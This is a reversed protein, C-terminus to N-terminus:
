IKNKINKYYLKTTSAKLYNITEKNKKTEDDFLLKEIYNLLGANQKLSNKSVKKNNLIKFSYKNGGDMIFPLELKKQMIINYLLIIIFYLIIFYKKMNNKLRNKFKFRPMACKVNKM